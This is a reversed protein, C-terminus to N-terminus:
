QKGKYNIAALYYRYLASMAFLESDDIPASICEYAYSLASAEFTSTGKTTKIAITYKDGLQHASINKVTVQYRGDSLKTATAAKGNVTVTVKGKYNKAPKIKFILTTDADLALSYNVKQIDANLSSNKQYGSMQSIYTNQLNRLTDESAYAKKMAVHDVGLTWPSGSHKSLYKQMYFGYDNVSKILEWLKAPDSSNFKELYSEATSTTTISQLTGNNDYYYLTAKVPDAMSVSDLMCTFGYTTKTTNMKNPDFKATQKKGCVEFEVYSDAYRTSPLTSLDAYFNLSISGGLTMSNNTFKPKTGDECIKAGYALSDGVCVANKYNTSGSKYTKIAADKPAALYCGDLIIYGSSTRLVKNVYVNSNKIYINGTGNIVLYSSGDTGDEGVQLDVNSITLDSDNARMNNVTLKGAGEVQTNTYLEIHSSSLNNSHLTTDSMTVIYFNPMQSKISNVNLTKGKGDLVLINLPSSQYFYMSGSGFSGDGDDLLNYQNSTRVQTGNIWLDYKENIVTTISTAYPSSATKGKRIGNSIYYVMDKITVSDPITITKFGRVAANKNSSNIYINKSNLALSASSGGFIGYDNGYISMSSNLTLKASGNVKVAYFDGYVRLTNGKFTTDKSINVCPNTVGDGTNSIECNTGTTNITLGDIGTNEIVSPNGELVKRYSKKVYLVKNDPDYSFEGGGLIDDKNASNVEQGCVKLGDYVEVPPADPSITFDNMRIGKSNEVYYYRSYDSYDYTYDLYGNVPDTIHCGNLKVEYTLQSAWWEKEESFSYIFYDSLDATITSYNIHVNRIYDNYPALAINGKFHVEVDNFYFEDAEICAYSISDIDLRGGTITLKGDIHMPDNAYDGSDDDSIFKVYSCDISLNLDQRYTRIISAGSGGSGVPRLVPSKNGRQTIHLTNTNHDYTFKATSQGGTVDNENTSTVQTGMVWINYNTAAEAKVPRLNPLMVAMLLLATLMTFIVALSIRKQTQTHEKM